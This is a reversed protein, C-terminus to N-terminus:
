FAIPIQFKTLIIYVKNQYTMQGLRCYKSLQTDTCGNETCYRYTGADYM